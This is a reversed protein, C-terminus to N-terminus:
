YAGAISGEGSLLGHGSAVNHRVGHVSTAILTVIDIYTDEVKMGVGGSAASIGKGRRWFEVAM